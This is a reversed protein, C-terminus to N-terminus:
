DKSQQLKRLQTVNLVSAPIRKEAVAVLMAKAWAPRDTLVEVARPRLSAPLRPFAEVIITGVEPDEVDALSDLVEGRFEVSSASEDEALIGKILSGISGQIRRYLVAEVAQLRVGEDYPSGPVDTKRTQGAITWMERLSEQDGCFALVIRYD